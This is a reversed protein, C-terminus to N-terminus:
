RQVKKSFLVMTFMILLMATVAWLSGPLYIQKLFILYQMDSIPLAVVVVNIASLSVLIYLKSKKNTGTSLLELMLYLAISIRVFAGSLWQYISLFDVHQIYKGVKVLRWEEFAPYRLAAAEYPGFEAIAGTAPGLVLVMLFLLMVWLSWLRVKCKLHQQFLLLLILEALGGGVYLSGRLAPTMGQEFIPTLLSYDKVPLNSSMVFDGFIIVFPLLFGSTIAIAQLGYRAGYFCLLLMSISLVLQPTRPLYSVHTWLVTDKLTLVSIFFLYVLFFLRIAVGVITGFRQQFWPIIPQQSTQKMICYLIFTWLLFPVIMVLVSIWADRQAEAILPPIVMVHNMLGIALIMTSYLPIFGITGQQNNM